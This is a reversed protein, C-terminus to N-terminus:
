TSRRLHFSSFIYVIEFKFFSRVEGFKMLCFYGQCHHFRLLISIYFTSNFPLLTSTRHEKTRKTQSCIKSTQITRCECNRIRYEETRKTNKVALCASNKAFCALNVKAFESLKRLSKKASM